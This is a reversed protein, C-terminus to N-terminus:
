PAADKLLRKPAKRRWAQALLERVFPSPAVALNVRVGVVRGGWVLRETCAPHLALARDREDDAIFVHLAEGTPEATAFIRTGVRFSTYHFHPAESAQPLALALRRVADLKM